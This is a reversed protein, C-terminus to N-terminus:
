KWRREDNHSVDFDSNIKGAVKWIFSKWKRRVVFTLSYNSLSVGDVVEKVQAESPNLGLFRMISGVDRFMLEIKLAFKSTISQQLGMMILYM